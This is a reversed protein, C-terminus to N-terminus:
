TRSARARMYALEGRASWNQAEKQFKTYSDMVKKSLPDAAALDGIVKESLQALGTLVADPFQKLTVKHKEILNALSSNNRAVMESLVAQNVASNAATVIAKLDDPLDNWKKLNVFNELCTSPEHWAPFYYYKATKYLGFALDNYPGVWETADIAGSQMAPPIEAGPLNVVNGGAAKVVEGGL